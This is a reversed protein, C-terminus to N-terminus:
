TYENRRDEPILDPWHGLTRDHWAAHALFAVKSPRHGFRLTHDRVFDVLEYPGVVDESDQAPGPASDHPGDAAPEPQARPILEPSIATDLVSRLAETARGDVAGTDAVWRILFQILTKPVSANVAYHSMQDGVGYTCWGLALESLDGTGLVLAGRRNALRFLHSTREGAQVNEYTTDYLAEGAGAPHEIDRLMQEAAPRIDLEHAEVGLAAMLAKANQLTHASTAFGPMTYALVNSRALGLQDMTGAAVLLAQTSDLGGSVGIVVREIAAARLRTALGAVQISYVERCREDRRSREHPVYPFREIARRRAFRAGGAAHEGSAPQLTDDAPREAPPVAVCRLSRLAGRHDLACDALSTQRLRDGAVRELDVEACLLHEDPSFRESEAVLEGNEYILAHGDFALDTSSEGAGAAVYLHASVTRASHSSCLLRRYDAKAVTINSASLNVLLNAGAMAAYTSPPIPVWLDECLEVHLNLAPTRECQFVLDAGFPVREGLLSLEDRLGDRAAAFQRKEYFERYSPLYSKPVVGLIRGRQLVVACNFLRSDALLPAGVVILPSLEASAALVQALADMVADLLAQQHFLDDCTYASLGLEPFAVLAAGEGSARRALAVTREANFAPDAVRVHPIAAAIRLFGHRRPNWFCSEPVGATSPNDSEM